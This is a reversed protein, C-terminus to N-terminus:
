EAEEILSNIKLIIDKNLMNRRKVKDVYSRLLRCKRKIEKEDKVAGHQITEAMAVYYEMEFNNKILQTVQPTDYKEFLIRRMEFSRMTSAEGIATYEECLDAGHTRSLQYAISIQRYIYAKYLVAFYYNTSLNAGIGDLNTETNSTTELETCRALAETCVSMMDDILELRQKLPTDENIIFLYYAFGMNEYHLAEYWMKFESDKMNESKSLSSTLNDILADFDIPTLKCTEIRQYFRLILTACDIACSLEYSFLSSNSKLRELLYLSEHYDEFFFAAQIYFLIYQAMEFNSHMPDEVYNKILKKYNYWRLVIDMKDEPVTKRQHSLFYAVIQEAAPDINEGELKLHKAWVGKLDSPILPDNEDINVYFIYIKSNNLRSVVYGLEFFLNNSIVGGTAEIADKKTIVFIAQSCKNMQNIISQGVFMSDPRITGDGGVIPMYNHDSLRKEVAKAIKNNGSWAIFIKEKM